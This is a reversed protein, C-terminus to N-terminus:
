CSWHAGVLERGHAVMDIVARMAGSDVLAQLNLDKGSKSM